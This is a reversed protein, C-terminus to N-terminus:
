GSTENEPSYKKRDLISYVVPIVVLTLLTSATLGGIVTVAMPSRLEAGEGIGLALPLLGLATTLTTMLISRLRLTGGEVIASVKDMGGIRLRNIVDILVIANNVVIGALLIAGIFVVVNITHGTIYLAYVAGIFALPISFIIVFPHLFSEFQSAMVLYVLFIALMLAFKLSQFSLEMEENQGSVSATIGEPLALSDIINNVTDAAGMLDGFAIGSSIVAVRQLDSRRIEGPATDVRIDAISNLAVPKGDAHHIILDRIDQISRFGRKDARVLVDIKRDYWSYKTASKGKVLNVVREAIESVEMGYYAAKERDFVVRIEPHGAEITSKIDTFQTSKEMKNVIKRSINKLDSINFGFIEIEVPTAFTFLEPRAFKYQLGPINELHQRMQEMTKEEDYKSAGKKLIVSLEGWNEGGQDPSINLKNGAGSASFTTKVGPIKLSKKQVAAIISDTKEIPTGPPLKFEVNFEGQSLEPILDIGILPIIFIASAFLGAAFVITLFRQKLAARLLSPYIKELLSYLGNFLFVGPKFIYLLATSVIKFLLLLIKLIVIPITTFLFNLLSHVIKSVGKKEENDMAEPDEAKQSQSISALMPILTLAVFLSALLSFTVTLAQDRFLQGAIGKVFVLPFFVAITTFTSATVAMGVESAGKTAAEGSEEGLERHRFINELVVISNDLLMGIGLALGGLSMINLSLDFSYMLNFTTIVSVPISFAIIVTTWFNRLFFYLLLIALIGGFLGAIIVENVAKNIFYSQDYIKLLDVGVPMTKQMKLLKKGIADSVKVSNADGEKYISIEVAEVGGIRSISAREKFGHFIKAVDKLYITRGKVSSVIVKGIEEISKFQNQTRVLYRQSGEELKGGSLNVNESRLLTVIREIPIKLGALKEKDLSVTIEDELGGSVKVSAVGPTTELERKIEEESFRRLYKLKNEGKMKKARKEKMSLAFRMIPDLAPDFRMIIPRKAEAPLILRDIKERVDLSSYDMDTGWSFELIVDSEGFRSISKIGIVNKVVGLAEEIQKTILTEVEMPASGEYETRITLTPYTLEPLLTVKLRSFSVFGFIVIALTFMTITVKRRISLTIINM